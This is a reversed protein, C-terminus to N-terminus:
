SSYRCLRKPLTVKTGGEEITISSIMSDGAFELDDSEPFPCVGSAMLASTGKTRANGTAAPGAEEDTWSPIAMTGAIRPKSGRIKGFGVKPIEPTDSKFARSSLRGLKTTMLEFVNEM